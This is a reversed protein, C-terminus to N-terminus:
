HDDVAVGNPDALFQGSRLRYLCHERLGSETSVRPHAFTGVRQMGLRQMVAQSRLNGLTTFSVIEALDLQEFGFRLAARAAETALGRGWHSAALRWGVEVCPSFPLGEPTHLGVFGIFLGSEIEEVAWFGWGRQAILAECRDALADSEARSLVAPFHAMVEPDANLAAFPERDSPQWQRLHLRPTTLNTITVESAIKM